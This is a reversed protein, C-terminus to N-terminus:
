RFEESNCILAHGSVFDGPISGAERYFTTARGNRRQIYDSRFKSEEDMLMLRGDALWAHEITSCGILDAAEKATFGSDPSAPSVEHTSGDFM